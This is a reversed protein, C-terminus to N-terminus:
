RIQRVFDIDEPYASESQMPEASYMVFRCGLLWIVEDLYNVVMIFIWGAKPHM